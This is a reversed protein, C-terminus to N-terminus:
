PTTVADRENLARRERRHLVYDWALKVLILGGAYLSESVVGPWAQIATLSAAIAFFLALTRKFPLWMLTAFRARRFEGLAVFNVIFSLGHGALFILSCKLMLMAHASVFENGPVGTLEQQAVVLAVGTLALLAVFIGGSKVMALLSFFLSSGRSVHVWRNEFPNGFLSATLLKLGSFLGIWLAEWWYVVILQFLSLDLVFYLLLMGANAALLSLSALSRAGLHRAASQTGGISEGTIQM